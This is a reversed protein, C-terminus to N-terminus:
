GGRRQLVPAVLPLFCNDGWPDADWGPVWRPHSEPPRIRARELVERAFSNSNPGCLDYPIKSGRLERGIESFRDVWDSAALDDDLLEISRHAGPDDQWDYHGEKFPGAFVGIPGSGTERPHLARYWPDHVSPGGSMAWGNGLNVEDLIV